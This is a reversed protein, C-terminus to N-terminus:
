FQIPFVLDNTGSSPITSNDEIGDEGVSYLIKKAPNYRLPRGDFDDRPIADLFEPVLADLKAPLHGFKLSYARLAILTVTADLEVRERSKWRIVTRPTYALSFLLEGAPNGGFTARLSNTQKATQMRWLGGSSKFTLTM